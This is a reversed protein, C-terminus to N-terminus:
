FRCVWKHQFFLVHGRPLWTYGSINGLFLKFVPQVAHNGLSLSLFPFLSLSFFIFVAQLWNQNGQLPACAWPQGLVAPKCAHGWAWTAMVSLM